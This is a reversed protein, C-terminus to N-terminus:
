SVSIQKKISGNHADKGYLQRNTVDHEKQVAARELRWLRKLLEQRRMTNKECVLARELLDRENALV